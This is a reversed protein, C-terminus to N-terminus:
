FSTAMQSVAKRYEEWQGIDIYENENVPYTVVRKGMKILTEMLHTMHFVKDKPIFDLCQSELIYVGTNICFSFEPKEELSSVIGGSEFKIVGYPIRHHQISSIVTLLAGSKQHFNLVDAFDAKVIIDCNSVIFTKPFDKPLLTLSGATGCYEAEKLYTVSYDREISDFYARIMEGRYNITFYYDRLGFHSFEDIILELITKNGIPILPKPLVNTFPAMRTGKGGAMIVVPLDLQQRPVARKDNGLLDDWKEYAVIKGESSLVPITEYKKNQMIKKANDETYVGEEFVFPHANYISTIPDAIQTGNLIGRRVDGDTLTGLLQRTQDVVFLIGEGTKDLIKLADRVTVLPTVLIESSNGIKIM